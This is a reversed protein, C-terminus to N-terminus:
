SLQLERDPGMSYESCYEIAKIGGYTVLTFNTQRKVNSTQCEYKWIETLRQVNSTQRQVNSTPRQVNSTPRQVNSTKHKINQQM